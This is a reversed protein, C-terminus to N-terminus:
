KFKAGNLVNYIHNEGKVTGIVMRKKLSDLTFCTIDSSCIDLFIKSVDGNLANWVKVKNGSPTLFLL